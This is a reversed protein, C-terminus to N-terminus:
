LDVWFELQVLGVFLFGDHSFDHNHFAQLVRIDELEKVLKLGLLFDNKDKLIDTTGAEILIHFVLANFLGQCLFSAFVKKLLNGFSHPVEVSLLDAVSIELKLIYDNVISILHLDNVKPKADM